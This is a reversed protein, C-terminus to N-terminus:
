LVEEVSCTCYMHTVDTAYTAHNIEKKYALRALMIDCDCTSILESDALCM